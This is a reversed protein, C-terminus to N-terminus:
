SQFGGLNPMVFGGGGNEAAHKRALVESEAYGAVIAANMTKELDSQFAAAEEPKVDEAADAQIQAANRTDRPVVPTNGDEDDELEPVQIEPMAPVVAPSILQGAEPGTDVDPQHRMAPITVEDLVPFSLNIGHKDLLEAVGTRVVATLETVEDKLAKLREADATVEVILEAMTETM